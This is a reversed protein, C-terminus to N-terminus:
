PTVVSCLSQYTIKRKNNYIRNPKENQRRSRAERKSPSLSRLLVFNGVLIQIKM